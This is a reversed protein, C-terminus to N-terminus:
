NRRRRLRSSALLAFLLSGLWGAGYHVLPRVEPSHWSLAIFITLSLILTIGCLPLLGTGIWSAGSPRHHALLYSSLATIAAAILLSVIRAPTVPVALATLAIFTILDATILLLMFAANRHNMM